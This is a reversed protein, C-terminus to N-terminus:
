CIIFEGDMIIIHPVKGYLENVGRSCKPKGGKKKLRSQIEEWQM